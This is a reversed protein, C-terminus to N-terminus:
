DASQEDHERRGGAEALVLTHGGDGETVFRSRAIEFGAGRLWDHHVDAGEHAWYMSVGPGRLVLREGNGDLSISGGHDPAMWRDCGTTCPRFSTPNNKSRCM